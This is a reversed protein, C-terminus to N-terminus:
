FNYSWLDSRLEVEAKYMKPHQFGLKRLRWTTPAVFDQSLFWSHIWQESFPRVRIEKYFSCVLHCTELLM